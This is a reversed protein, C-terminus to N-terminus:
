LKFEKHLANVTKEVDKSNVLCSITTHSDSTQLITINEASLTNVIRAMVGPVGRIRHGIITVKSCDKLVSYQFNNEKLIKELEGLDKQHITFVKKDTFFNILDISIQHKTLENMLLQNKEHLNEISITVQVIDHKHSIATLLKEPKHRIIEEDYAVRNLNGIITGPADTFTNKIVLPISSRRAIDVAKPHVVKAGDEAMQYIEDYCIHDIVKAHPVLRPDATMVGDVDTYIEVVDANLAEGLLSATTDSGGRGLTTIDGDMTIGQFGTVVPILGKQLNKLINKSDVKLVEANGFQNNTIIGAQFGTLAAAEYGMSKIVNALLVSSIIEGCSMIMDLERGTDQSHASYALNILTDTAYPDGKRGMASVVVVPYYGSEKSQIIKRAVKERLEKSAVSTGGFKQVIIKM